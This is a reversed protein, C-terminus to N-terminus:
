ITKNPQALFLDGERHNLYNIQGDEGHECICPEDHLAIVRGELPMEPVYAIFKAKHGDRTILPHGSMASQLNFPLRSM